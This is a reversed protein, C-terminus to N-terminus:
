PVYTVGEKVLGQNANTPDKPGKGEGREPTPTDSRGLHKKLFKEM